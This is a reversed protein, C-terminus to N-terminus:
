EKRFMFSDTGLQKLVNRDDARFRKRMKVYRKELKKKNDSYIVACTQDAEGLTGELYVKLQFSYNAYNQISGDKNIVISDLCQVDTLYVVSDNFDVSVGFMSVRKPEEKKEKPATFSSLLVIGMLALFLYKCKNM